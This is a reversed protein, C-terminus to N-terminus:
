GQSAAQREPWDLEHQWIKCGTFYTQDTSEMLKKLAASDYHDLQSADPNQARNELLADLDGIKKLDFYYQHKDPSSSIFRGSVTKHMERPGTEVQFLHEDAPVGGSEENGYQYLCLRDRLKEATPGLSACLNRATVRHTHSIRLAMSKYTPRTFAQTTCSKLVLSCDVVVKIGPAPRRSSNERLSTCYSDYPIIKKRIQEALVGDSTTGKIKRTM